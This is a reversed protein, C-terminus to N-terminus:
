DKISIFINYGEQALSNAFSFARDKNSFTGIRVRYYQKGDILATSIYVNQYSIKLGQMLREANARDRFSGVQITYPGKSSPTTRTVRKAYRMDRGLYQIRVRGVGKRILGIEKAAAYSLDLDRGKIFPGRDNVTVIVSRNNDPNTVRLRTGFPFQKHACTMAYMNFREGSATPRGHFKPGYWSAIVYDSEPPQVVPPPLSACSSITIIISFLLLGSFLTKDRQMGKVVSCLLFDM